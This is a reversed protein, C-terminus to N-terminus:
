FSFSFCFLPAPARLLQRCETDSHKARVGAELEQIWTGTLASVPLNLSPDLLQTGALWMPSSQTEPGVDTRDWGKNSVNPLYTLLQSSEPEFLNEFIISLIQLLKYFNFVTFIHLLSSGLYIM